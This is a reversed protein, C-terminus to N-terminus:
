IKINQPIPEFSFVRGRFAKKALPITMFGINSGLDLVQGDEPIMNLFYSFERNYFKLQLRWITFISFIFLYNDM